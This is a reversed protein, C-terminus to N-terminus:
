RGATVKPSRGEFSAERTMSGCFLLPVATASFFFAQLLRRLSLWNDM